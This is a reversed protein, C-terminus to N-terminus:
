FLKHFCNIVHEYAPKLKNRYVRYSLKYFHTYNIYFYSSICAIVILVLTIFM